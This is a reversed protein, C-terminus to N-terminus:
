SRAKPLLPFTIQFLIIRFGSKSSPFWLKAYHYNQFRKTTEKFIGIRTMEAMFYRWYSHSLCTLIRDGGFMGKTQKATLFLLWIALITAYNQMCFISVLTV